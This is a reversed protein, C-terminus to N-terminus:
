QCARGRQGAGHRADGRKNRDRSEDHDCRPGSVASAVLLVSFQPRAAVSSVAAHERVRAAFYFLHQDLFPIRSGFV